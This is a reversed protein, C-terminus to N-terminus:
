QTHTLSQSIRVVNWLIGVDCILHEEKEELERVCISASEMQLDKSTMFGKCKQIYKIGTLGLKDAVSCQLLSM